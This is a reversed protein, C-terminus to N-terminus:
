YQGQAKKVLNLVTNNWERYLAFRYADEWVHLDIARDTRPNIRQDTLLEGLWGVLGPQGRTVRYVEAVVAPVVPQGSEEQYQRWLEVVENETLNPVHLSRQVNFPSGRQSEVGLVARVGILALGHLLYSERNLYMDRFLAVLQDIVQHPLSDFEDICLILPREFLEGGPVFLRTLAEWDEPPAELEVGFTLRMLHPVKRLFAEPPDDDRMVIGQMSMSAVVFEDGYRAQIEAKARRMLWTKGTQRPAWITFYRGGEEGPRGVLQEVCSDVLERREVCFHAPRSVPGYSCFTRM